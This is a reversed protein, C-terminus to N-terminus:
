LSLHYSTPRGVDVAYLFNPRSDICQETKILPVNTSRSTGDAFPYNAKFSSFALIQFLHRLFPFQEIEQISIMTAIVQQFRGVCRDQSRHIHWSRLKMPHCRPEGQRKGTGQRAPPKIGIGTDSFGYDRTWQLANHHRYPVFKKNRKTHFWRSLCFLLM